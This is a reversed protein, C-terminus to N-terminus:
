FYSWHTIKLLKKGKKLIDEYHLTEISPFNIDNLMTIYEEQLSNGEHGRACEYIINNNMNGHSPTNNYTIYKSGNSFFNYTIARRAGNIADVEPYVYELVVRADYIRCAIYINTPFLGYLNINENIRYSKHSEYINIRAMEAGIYQIIVEPRYSNKYTAEWTFMQRIRKQVNKNISHRGFNPFALCMNLWLRANKPAETLTVLELIDLPLSELM